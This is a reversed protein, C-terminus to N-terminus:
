PKNLPQRTKPEVIISPPVAESGTEVLHQLDGQSVAEATAAPTARQVGYTAPPPATDAAAEKEGKVEALTTPAVLGLSVAHEAMAMSDAALVLSSGAGAVVTALDEIEKIRKPDRSINRIYVALVRGPHEEVIQRYIEPDHQGSDGILVFPLESYLALMNHILERKHDEAKRPLPSKWSVGWERLFLIPGIPIGNRDFFEELVEYIGWPARSVYLMPNQQNGSIGAHLARYLAGAGPFAVRSQADEVFLRWLMRLKNAVGTYMITDDIDSIVVYRCSAPPIFIQAQAQVPQPQELALDMTHWLRDLPPPLPPSLHVRFYGDKDTTFPEETGYFRATGGAHPVARRAIRRGIDRLDALLNDKTPESSPRSQRFVRGILFVESRSGYGRYPQVVVGGEGQAEHVPRAILGSIRTFAGLWRKTTGTDSM